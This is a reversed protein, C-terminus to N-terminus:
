AVASLAKTIATSLARSCIRFISTELDFAAPVDIAPPLDTMPECWRLNPANRRWVSRCQLGIEGRGRGSTQIRGHCHAAGIDAPFGTEV